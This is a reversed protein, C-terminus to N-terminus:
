MKELDSADMFETWKEPLELDSFDFVADPPPILGQNTYITRVIDDLKLIYLSTIAFIVVMLGAQRLTAGASPWRTAAFEEKAQDIWNMQSIRDIEKKEEDTLEEDDTDLSFKSMDLMQPEEMNMARATAAEIAQSTAKSKEMNLDAARARIRERMQEYMDQKAAFDEVDKETVANGTRQARAKEEEDRLQVAAEDFSMSEVADNDSAKKKEDSLRLPKTVFARRDLSTSQQICRLVGYPQFAWALQSLVAVSTM